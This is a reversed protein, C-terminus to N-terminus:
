QNRGQDLHVWELDELAIEGFDMQINDEWRGSPSGLSIQGEPKGVLINNYANRMVGICAVHWGM